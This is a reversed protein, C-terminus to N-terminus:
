SGSPGKPHLVFFQGPHKTIGALRGAKDGSGFYVDGREPGRIASGVDQAIMLRAFGKGAESAHTLAPSCVYVPTGIAHFSTDIALSRDPTLPIHMVGMASEAEAGELPRFFVFSKNQWMASRGREADAALWTKMSDLSMQDFTFHGQDILYRGVSTYPHGNKGDYTIRLGTGDPLRILGSGQIHLFFCDVADDLWVLELNKGFLSGQEIQKRTEFPETGDPLQRVHTLAEGVTGRAADSVLNILDPPRRYVPITFRDTKVLSGELEPEYYGTLLGEAGNHNVRHPTFHTEFFIKSQPGPLKGARGLCEARECIEVLQLMMHPANAALKESHRRVPACSRLFAEFAAAHDDGNWDPLDAFGVPEFSASIATMNAPPFGLPM